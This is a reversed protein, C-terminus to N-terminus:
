ETKQAELQESVEGESLPAPYVVDSHDLDSGKALYIGVGGSMDIELLEAIGV